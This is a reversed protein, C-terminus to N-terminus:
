ASREPELEFLRFRRDTVTIYDTWGPFWAVATQWRRQREAGEPLRARVATREPCQSM